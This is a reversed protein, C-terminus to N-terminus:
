ENKNEERETKLVDEEKYTVSYLYLGDPPATAGARVRKKGELIDKIKEPKLKGTAVAVLTGTVIRVMNYLFGDGEISLTYLPAEGTVQCRFVTRVPSKTPSGESRFASFDHTGVLYSAAENMKELADPLFPLFVHWARDKYFPNMVRDKYILYRYEKSVADYRPHFGDGAEKAEAVSLDPPLYPALAQPLKEPPVPLSGDPLALTLCFGEAHVGSDTRSCGTVAVDKGFFNRAAETLTGQVTRKGPQTQFGHFYTGAYRVKCLYKM